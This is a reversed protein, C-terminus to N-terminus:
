KNHIKLNVYGKSGCQGLLTINGNKSIDKVGGFSCIYTREDIKLKKFSKNEYYARHVLIIKIPSFNFSFDAWHFKSKFENEIHSKVVNFMVEYGNVQEIIEDLSENSSDIKLEIIYPTHNQDYGILDICNVRPSGSKLPIEYGILRINKVIERSINLKLSGILYLDNRLKAESNLNEPNLKGHFCGLKFNEKRM